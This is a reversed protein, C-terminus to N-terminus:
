HLSIPNATVDVDTHNLGLAQTYFICAHGPLWGVQFVARKLSFCPVGPEQTNGSTMVHCESTAQSSSNAPRSIHRWEGHRRQCTEEACLEQHHSCESDLGLYHALWLYSIVASLSGSHLQECYLLHQIRFCDRSHNMELGKVSGCASSNQQAVGWGLAIAGPCFGHVESDRGYLHHKPLDLLSSVDQFCHQQPAPSFLCNPFWLHFPPSHFPPSHLWSIWYGLLCICITGSHQSHHPHADCPIGLCIM